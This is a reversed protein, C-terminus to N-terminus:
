GQLLLLTMQPPIMQHPNQHLHPTSEVKSIVGHIHRSKLSQWSIAHAPCSCADVLFQLPNIYQSIARMCVDYQLGAAGDPRATHDTSLSYSVSEQSTNRSCGINCAHRLTAQANYAAGAFAAAFVSLLLSSSDESSSSSAGALTAAAASSLLSSSDDSLSSSTM